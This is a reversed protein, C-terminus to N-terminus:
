LSAQLDIMYTESSPVNIRYDDGNQNPFTLTGGSEVSILNDDTLYASIDTEIPTALEFYFMGTPPIQDTGDTKVYVYQNNGLSIEYNSMSTVYIMAKATYKESIINTTSLGASNAKAINILESSVFVLYSSFAWNLTGLDVRGVNQVFVKREYDIYNFVSGASWGYGELAQIEAPIPYSFKFPKSYPLTSEGEKIQYDAFTTTVNASDTALILVGVNANAPATVVQNNSIAYDSSIYTGDYQYWTVSMRGHTQSSYSAVYKTGPTAVFPFGVGYNGNSGATMTVDNATVSSSVINAPIYINNHSLGVVYKGLTFQRKTTGATSTDSPVGAGDLGYALNASLSDVETVGASLLTGANYSYYSAPFMQQFEAVTTPENGSGFMLTLDFVKYNKVQVQASMDFTTSASGTYANLRVTYNTIITALTYISNLNTWTNASVPVYVGMGYIQPMISCNVNALVDVSVLYKHGVVQTGIALNFGRTSFTTRGEESPQMTLINNSVSIVSFDQVWGTTSEFNGNQVLQNWVVTKGGVSDLSAYPMAGQPVTKTYKSDTDTQYDYLNGELLKEINTVRKNVIDANVEIPKIETQVYQTTAIKTSNDDASPTPATSTGAM